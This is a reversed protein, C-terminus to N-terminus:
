FGEDTSWAAILFGFVLFPYCSLIHIPERNWITLPIIPVKYWPFGRSNIFPIKGMDVVLYQHAWKWEKIENVLFMEVRNGMTLVVGVGKGKITMKIIGYRFWNILSGIHFSGVQGGMGIFSGESMGLNSPLNPSSGDLWTMFKWMHHEEFEMM